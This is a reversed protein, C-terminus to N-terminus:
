NGPFIMINPKGHSGAFLSEMLETPRRLQLGDATEVGRKEFVLRKFRLFEGRCVDEDVLPDFRRGDVAQLGAAYHELPVNLHGNGWYVLLGTRIPATTSSRFLVNHSCEPMTM